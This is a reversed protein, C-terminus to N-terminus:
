DNQHRGERVKVEQVKIRHFQANRVSVGDMQIQQTESSSENAM